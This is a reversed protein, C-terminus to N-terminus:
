SKVVMADTVSVVGDVKRAIDDARRKQALNDVFGSLEVKGKFTKVTISLSKMERDALFLSKIKVTIASSDVFQGTSEQNSTSVCGTLM